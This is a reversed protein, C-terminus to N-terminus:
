LDRIKVFESKLEGKLRRTWDAVDGLHRGRPLVRTYGALRACAAEVDRGAEARAAALLASFYADDVLDSELIQAELDLELARVFDDIAEADRGLQVHATARDVYHEPNDDESAIARTAAEIAEAFEGDQILKSAFSRGYQGMMSM